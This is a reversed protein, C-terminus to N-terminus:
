AKDDTAKQPKNAESTHKKFEPPKGDFVYIPEIKHEMMRATRYFIGSLHSTVMGNSDRLPEGTFRDRIISLFQYMTNYADIAIRKGALDEFGVQKASQVLETLNVGM